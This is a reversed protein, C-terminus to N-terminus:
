RERILPNVFQGIFSKWSLLRFLLSCNYITAELPTAVIRTIDFLLVYPACPNLYKVLSNYNKEWNGHGQGQIETTGKMNETKKNLGSM